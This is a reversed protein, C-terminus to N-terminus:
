ETVTVTITECLGEITRHLDDGAQVAFTHQGPTLQMEIVNKGDGFHIWPAAKPIEQDAPLCTTDVGLHYHGMGARVETVTGAPVAAVMLQESGFEFQVPSTVTAGDRPQVFFVRGAGATHATHDEAAAPAAAAPEAPPAEGGCGAVLFALGFVIASIRM